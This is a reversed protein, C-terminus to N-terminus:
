EKINYIDSINTVHQIRGGVEKYTKLRTKFHKKLVPNSDVLDFIIPESDPRRFIRGLYQIFYEEIDAAIVLTDLINHSFGTGCKSTTAILIRSTEDITTNSGLLDCVNEDLERLKNVLYKGQSIRKCLILFTRNLFHKVISIIMTNREENDAQNTLLSNWDMKGNAQISYNIKLNTWIPYVYHQKQLSFTIQNSGFFYDILISFEDPRFATASLGLIYRPTLHLLQCASTPATILHVEDCIVFGISNLLLEEMKGINIANIVYIDCDETKKNPKLLQCSATTMEKILNIWQEALILRNVVILTKFKLMMSLYLAIVSKGYGVHLSCLCTGTTKLMDLANKSTEVQHERLNGTFEFSVSPYTTRKPPKINYKRAYSYPLYLRKDKTIRFVSVNKKENFHLDTLIQKRQDLNLEFLNLEISM